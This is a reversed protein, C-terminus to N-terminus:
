FGLCSFRSCSNEQEYFGLAGDSSQICIFDRGDNGYSGFKGFAFNFANRQLRLEYILKLTGTQPVFVEFSRSHLVGLTELSTHSFFGAEIQLIPQLALEFM